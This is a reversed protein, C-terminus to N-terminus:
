IIYSLIKHDAINFYLLTTKDDLILRLLAVMRVYLVNLSKNPILVWLEYNLYIHVPIIFEQYYHINCLRHHSMM